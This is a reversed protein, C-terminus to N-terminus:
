PKVRTQFDVSDGSDFASCTGLIPKPPTKFKDDKTASKFAPTQAQCFSGFIQRAYEHNM